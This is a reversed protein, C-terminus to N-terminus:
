QPKVIKGDKIQVVYINPTSQGSEKGAPGAKDFKIDGNVGKVQVNWLADRIAAPEAKGADKIAQVVTLIGDYGRFGDTLGSFSYGKKTWERIFVKAVDPHTADDPFWPMFFVIHYSGNAATGAQEILQDPASSGGTSVIRHPVRQEQAQKLVLTLQEIGTTVFLTDGGSQKIKALQASLDTADPAMTESVGIQIGKARLMKSFEEAAGRGWDNNVVLMDAKKLAPSFKELRSDGFVKAEVSSPPSIRFVWPNGSTTIKGSSATEVVMPVQYEMLRPMIALTLTSGWAGLLVPVKDGSLLKEATAVAEKPNSKNDELILQIQRGLVGGSSNVVETAIRAGNAVYTGSAAIDGTLPESMGIKIPDAAYSTVLSCLLFTASTVALRM